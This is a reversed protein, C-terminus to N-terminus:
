ALEKVILAVVLVALVAVLVLLVVRAQGPRATDRTRQARTAHQPGTQRESSRRQAESPEPATPAAVPAPAVTVAAGAAQPHADSEAAARDAVPPLRVGVATDSIPSVGVHPVTVDDEPHLTIEDAARKATAAPDDGLAFLVATINDEGGHDNAAQILERSATSLDDRERGLISAITETDVMTTLGDSCLLFIDGDQGKVTFADVTVEAETGLARTIVSRQPHVEAQEPSLEGRRVLEAVLSHDDTLQKLEGQRLLYARSDGVHGIVVTGDPRVLAVTMTTGMGAASRDSLAREHVCRNANQILEGVHAEADGLPVVSATRLAGTALSSAVEGARAGGMGDAVAFLPSACVFADENHRRKRGTNSAAADQVVRM